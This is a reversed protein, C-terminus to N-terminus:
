PGRRLRKLNNATNPEKFNCFKHFNTKKLNLGTAEQREKSPNNQKKMITEIIDSM